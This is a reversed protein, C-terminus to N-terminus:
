LGLEEREDLISHYYFALYIPAMPYLATMKCVSCVAEHLTRGNECECCEKSQASLESETIIM